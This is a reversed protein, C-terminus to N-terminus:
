FRKGDKYKIMSFLIFIAFEGENFSRIPLWFVV